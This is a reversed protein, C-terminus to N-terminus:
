YEGVGGVVSNVRLVEIHDNKLTGGWFGTRMKEGEYTGWARWSFGFARFNDPTWNTKNKPRCNMGSTKRFRAVRLSIVVINQLMKRRSYFMLTYEPRVLGLGHLHLFSKLRFKSLFRWCTTAVNLCGLCLCRSCMKGSFKKFSSPGQRNFDKALLVAKLKDSLTLRSSRIIKPDLIRM